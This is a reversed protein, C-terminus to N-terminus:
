VTSRRARALASTSLVTVVNSNLTTTGSSTAPNAADTIIANIQLAGPANSLSINGTGSVNVVLDPVGTGARVTAGAYYDPAAGGDTSVGSGGIVTAYSIGSQASASYPGLAGDNAIIGGAGVTLTKANVNLIGSGTMYLTGITQSATMTQTLSIKVNDTAAWTTNNVYTATNYTALPVIKGGSVTAWDLANTSENAALLNGFTAWPGIIGNTM